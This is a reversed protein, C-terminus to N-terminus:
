RKGKKPPDFGENSCFFKNWSQITLGSTAATIGLHNLSDCAAECCEAWTMKKEGLNQLALTYAQNLLYCRERLFNIEQETMDNNIDGGLIVNRWGNYKVARQLRGIRRKLVFIVSVNKGPDKDEEKDLDSFFLNKADASNWYNLEGSSKTSLKKNEEQEESQSQPSTLTSTPAATRRRQLSRPNADSSEDRIRGAGIRHEMAQKILPNDIKYPRRPIKKTDSSVYYFTIKRKKNESYQDLGNFQCSFVRYKNTDDFVGCFTFKKKIARNFAGRDLNTNLLRDLYSYNMTLYRTWNEEMLWKDHYQSDSEVMRWWTDGIMKTAAM